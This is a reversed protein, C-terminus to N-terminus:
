GRAAVVALKTARRLEDGRLTLLDAGILVTRIGFMRFPYVGARGPGTDVGLRRLLVHPTLLALAGNAIRVGALVTRAREATLEM